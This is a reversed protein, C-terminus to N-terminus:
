NLALECAKIGAPGRPGIPGVFGKPGTEGRPGQKGPPGDMGRPADFVTQNIYEVRGPEGASGEEGM